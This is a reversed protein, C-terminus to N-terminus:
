FTTESQIRSISGKAAKGFYLGLGGCVVSLVLSSFIITQANSSQLATLVAIKLVVITNIAIGLAFTAVSYAITASGRYSGIQALDADTVPYAKVRRRGYDFDFGSGGGSASRARKSPSNTGTAAPANNAVPVSVPKAQAPLLDAM